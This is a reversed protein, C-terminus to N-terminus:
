RKQTNKLRENRKNGGPGSPTAVINTAQGYAISGTHGLLMLVALLGHIFLPLGAPRCTM